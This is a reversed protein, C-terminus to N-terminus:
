SGGGPLARGLGGRSRIGLKRYVRTLNAEVTKTTLFVREAIERNALGAAALEAVQRETPTLEHPVPQRQGLRALESRASAAWSPAGVEEFIRLAEQLTEAALRRDKRRRHVRGKVLLTRAREFPMGSCQHQVLAETVAALAGDSEGRAACLLARCRGAAALAWPRALTAGREELWRLFSAARELQGLEILAEIEDPLFVGLFPDGGPRSTLQAALPGLTADTAEPNGSWLEALGGAWLAYIAAVAWGLDEFCQAAETAEQRALAVSGDHAHVLASAALAIGRAAPDALLTSTQLAEDAFRRAAAFDGRWLCTWTLWFCSFPVPSEEGRDLTKVHLAGLTSLAEDLRGTYLLLSGYVFAPACQWARDRNPDELELARLIRAEDFGGGAMFEAITVVALADALIGSSGTQEAASVAGRAHQVAASLNGLSACYYGLDMEVDATLAADDAAAELAQQALAIADAYSNRRAHVQGLLHLVRARLPAELRSDTAQELMTQARSLDGADFWSGAAALRRAACLGDEGPSTLRIAMELLEAAAAPAARARAIAAASELESAITPDPHETGLAAHRAREEPDALARALKGHVRRRQADGAQNQIASAFLPHTFRIRGADISVIGARRAREMAAHNVMDMTPRSLVAAALLASRTRAPLRKVRSGVLDALSAPVPFRGGDLPEDGLDAAVELAYFPNGGCAQALQVIVPRPLSRRTRQKIAQHLAAVTLPGIRLISRGEPDADRDLSLWPGSGSRVTVLFGIPEVRLRRAAFGLARASSTDLWQGDDVAVLLPREASLLRLLTLVAACLAREDIGRPPAPVRLLAAAIAQRQPTPLRSFVADGVADFLDTLAAFSMGAEADTPRTLVVRMGRTRARRVAERWVTTKGMGPEGEMTLQAFDTQAAALFADIAALEAERGVVVESTSSV